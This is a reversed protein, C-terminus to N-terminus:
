NAGRLRNLVETFRASYGPANRLTEFDPDREVELSAAAPGAEELAELAGDFDGSKALSCALNYSVRWKETTALDRAIRYFEIARPYEGIEDYVWALDHVTRADKRECLTVARELAEKAKQLRSPRERSNRDVAAWFSFTRGLDACIKFDDPSLVLARQVRSLARPFNKTIRWYRALKRLHDACRAKDNIVGLRDCVALLADSDEFVLADEPRVSDRSDLHLIQLNEIAPLDDFAADVAKWSEALSQRLSTIQDSAKQALLSAKSASEAATGAASAADQARSLSESIKAKVEERLSQIRRKESFGFFAGVVTLLVIFGLYVEMLGVVLAVQSESHEQARRAQDLAFEATRRTDAIERAAIEQIATAIAPHVVGVSTQTQVAQPKSTPEPPTENDSVSAPEAHLASIAWTALLAAVTNSIRSRKRRLFGRM